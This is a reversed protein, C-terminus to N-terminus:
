PERDRKPRTMEKTENPEGRKRDEEKTDKRQVDFERGREINGTERESMSENVYRTDAQWIEGGLGGKSLSRQSMTPWVTDRAIM